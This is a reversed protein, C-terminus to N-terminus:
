GGVLAVYYGFAVLASLILALFYNTEMQWRKKSQRQIIFPKFAMFLIFSTFFLATTYELASWGGIWEKVQRLISLATPKESYKQPIEPVGEAKDITLSNPVDGIFEQQWKRMGKKRDVM